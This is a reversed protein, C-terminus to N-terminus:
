TSHATTDATLTFSRGTQWSSKRSSAELTVASIVYAAQEKDATWAYLRSSSIVHSTENAWKGQITRSLVITEENDIHKNQAPLLGFAPDFVFCGKTKTERCVEQWKDYL